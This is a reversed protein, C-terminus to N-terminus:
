NDSEEIKSSKLKARNKAAWKRKYERQKQLKVPDQKELQRRQHDRIRDRALQEEKQASTMSSRRVRQKEAEAKRFEPDSRKNRMYERNSDLKDSAREADTMGPRVHGYFRAYAQANNNGSRTQWELNTVCPNAKNEDKHHILTCGVGRGYPTPPPGLFAFAVLKHVLVKLTPKRGIRQTLGVQLYGQANVSPKLIREINGKTSKIQGQRNIYYEICSSFGPLSHIPIWEVTDIFSGTTVNSM